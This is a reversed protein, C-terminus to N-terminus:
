RRRGAFKTIAAAIAHAPLSQSVAGTRLAEGPMGFIVATTESEAIALGGQEHIAVVGDAGDKGMGTLVVGFVGKGFVGAASIMMRDISPVIRGPFAQHDIRAIAGDRTREVILSGDGPCVLAEGVCLRDGPSAESVRLTSVGDLRRAFAGTFTKPMHQSVLVAADLDGPLTEFITRLVAPGGTSAGICVVRSVKAPEGEPRDGPPRGLAPLGRLTTRSSVAPLAAGALVKLKGVVEDAVDPLGGAVPKAVFDVAGLELARFVHDRASHASIVLVPTPRHTMLMRLFAYGDMRPMELDLTIVDPSLKEVRDLAERGDAAAGALELGTAATVLESLTRRAYASDDVVLVRIPATM